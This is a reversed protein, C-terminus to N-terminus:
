QPLRVRLPKTSRSDDIAKQIEEVTAGTKRMILRLTNEQLKLLDYGNVTLSDAAIRNALLTGFAATGSSIGPSVCEFKADDCAASQPAPTTPARDVRTTVTDHTPISEKGQAHVAIVGSMFMAGILVGALLFTLNIASIKLYTKADMAAVAYDGFNTSGEM